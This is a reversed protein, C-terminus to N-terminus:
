SARRRLPAAAARLMTLAEAVPTCPLGASRAVIVAADVAGSVDIWGDLVAVLDANELAAADRARAVRLEAPALEVGPGSGRWWPQEYPCSVRAGAARLAASAAPFTEAAPAQIVGLELLTAELVAYADPDVCMRPGALYVRSGAPGAGSGGAGPRGQVQGWTRGARM